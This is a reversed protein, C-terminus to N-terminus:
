ANYEIKHITDKTIIFKITNPSYLVYLFTLGIFLVEAMKYPVNELNIQAKDTEKMM